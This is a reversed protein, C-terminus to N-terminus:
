SKIKQDLFDKLENLSEAYNSNVTFVSTPAANAQYMIAQEPRECVNLCGSVMVRVKAHAEQEKLYVRLDKKLNEANEPTGFSAGCKNCIFVSGVSWPTEYNKM